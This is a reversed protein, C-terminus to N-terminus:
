SIATTTSQRYHAGGKAAELLEPRRHGPEVILCQLVLFEDRFVRRADRPKPLSLLGGVPLHLRGVRPEVPRAEM